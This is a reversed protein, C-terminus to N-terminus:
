QKQKLETNFYPCLRFVIYVMMGAFISVAMNAVSVLDTLLCRLVVCMVLGALIGVAISKIIPLPRM